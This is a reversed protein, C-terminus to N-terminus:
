TSILTRSAEFSKREEKSERKISRLRKKRKVSCFLLVGSSNIEESHTGGTWPSPNGEANAHHVHYTLNRGDCHVSFVTSLLNIWTGFQSSHMSWHKGFIIEGCYAYFLLTTLSSEIIYWHNGQKSILSHSHFHGNRQTREDQPFKSCKTKQTGNVNPHHEFWASPRAKSQHIGYAKQLRQDTSIVMHLLTSDVWLQFEFNTM